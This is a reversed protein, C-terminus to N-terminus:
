RFHEALWADSHRQMEAAYRRVIADDTEGYEALVARIEDIEATTAM